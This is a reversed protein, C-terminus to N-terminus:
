GDNEKFTAWLNPYKLIIGFDDINLFARFNSQPSEYEYLEEHINRYIQPLPKVAWDATDLWLAVSQAQDGESLNLRRIANTNSAPTFGLDIDKLGHLSEDIEGNVSWAGNGAREVLLRFNSNGVWGSVSAKLSGWEQDCVLRYGLNAPSGEHVFVAAGEITWGGSTEIFRCADSGEQDLRRWFVTRM